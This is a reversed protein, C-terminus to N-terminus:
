PLRRIAAPLLFPGSQGATKRREGDLWDLTNRIEPLDARTLIRGEIEYSQNAACALLAKKWAAVQADLEPLTFIAM